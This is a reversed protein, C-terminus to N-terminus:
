YGDISTPGLMAQKLHERWRGNLGRDLVLVCTARDSDLEVMANRPDISLNEYEKWQGGSFDLVHVGGADNTTSSSPMILTGRQFPTILVARSQRLDQGDLSLLAKMGEGRLLPDKGISAEGFANVAVIKGDDTVAALAPWRNRTKLTLRGAATPIVVEQQGQDTRCNFVAHVTGKVTPQAMVHLWPENPEIPLPKVATTELFTSYIRRRAEEAATNGSLEIPDLCLFVKNQRVLLPTGDARAQLVQAGAPRVRICPHLSAAPDDPKSTSSIGIGAGTPREIDPYEEAVFEVGALEKLRQTRNRKRNEDYSIDGTVLIHVGKRALTLLRQYTEDGLSFPSPYIIAKTDDPVDALHHDDIVNFDYHLGLLTEFCRDAVDRGVAEFNGLRLNNPVCVTLEPAVYRPAFHRWILSQNRHVYAVDKPILQNPYFLGWPFVSDQADQLCWNQVKGAGMGLAYHAVAMFLQIQEEESRVIHYDTAGNEVSWAPHTKVGYEGLAVGKGRVRLDNFRIKLPLIDIDKGPTSFFGFNSVDQGDITQILDMGGFPIQYYESTIPHLSDHKRIAAVHSENWRRTLWNQFRMRDVIATDNWKGSDPPWFPMRGIEMKAAVEGWAARLKDTTEYRDKLWRNWLIEVEKPHQDLMMQYDGNIYYLLGPLDKFREAYQACLASQRALMEDGVAVNHGILMGPMYVLDQRQSLQGMARFDRWDDETMERNPRVHNLNEYLNLGVDECAQMDAAWTLPNSYSSKYTYAFADTGFLFMPRGNVTFYNDKFRLEPGAKIAADSDVVFGTVMEDIISSEAHGRPPELIARVEYLNRPTEPITIQVAIEEAKGAPITVIYEQRLLPMSELQRPDTQRGSAIITIKVRSASRGRNDIAVSATAQEGPKYFRHDTKLNRLFTRAAMFRAANALGQAMPGHMEGFLDVNDVGFYAWCSAAYHGNYHVLMAGAAGRPRGYRDVAEVLPIWRANNSGIVGSAAWGTLPQSVGIEGSFFRQGAAAHIGVARKLPYSADFMGIQEPAVVLGDMPKGTSTNMPRVRGGTIDSLRIDDFWATGHTQYLGFRVMLRQVSPGTTVVLKHYAWNTTGRAVAFDNFAVLKGQGDHQYLAIYAMGTEVLKESRLWGSVQYMTGPKCSVEQWFTPGKDADGPRVVAKACWQGEHPSEGVLLCDPSTRTWQGASARGPEALERVREMDGNAILSRDKGTAQELRAKCLDEEGQWQGNELRLLHNFAYGGMAILSGDDRLFQVVNDRAEVPFSEGTPLVLIDFAAPNLISQDAMERASILRTHLGAQRLIAAITEPSSAAGKIPMDPEHLIAAAPRTAPVPQTVPQGFAHVGIFLIWLVCFSRPALQM